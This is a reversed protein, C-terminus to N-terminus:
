EHGSWSSKLETVRLSRIQADGGKAYLDLCTDTNKPLFCSTMSIEGHNAFTEISTRDVLIRLALVGDIPSVGATRGLCSIQGDAYAIATEHLRVGFETAHGPEIEMAIDFLNASIGSLPNEGPRLTYDKLTFPKTYLCEIEKVPYRLLRIGKATKRLTLECPFSQQQNFPM